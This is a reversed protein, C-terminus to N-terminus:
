SFTNNTKVGQQSRLASHLGAGMVKTVTHGILPNVMLNTLKLQLTRQTAWGENGKCKHTHM